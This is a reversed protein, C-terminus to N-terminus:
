LLATRLSGVGVLGVRWHRNTGPIGQIEPVRQSIECVIEPFGFHGLDKCVQAATIWLASRLQRSSIM